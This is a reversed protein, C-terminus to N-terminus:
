RSKGEGSQSSDTRARVLAQLHRGFEDCTLERPANLDRHEKVFKQLEGRADAHRWASASVHRRESM